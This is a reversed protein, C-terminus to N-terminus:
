AAPRRQRIELDYGISSLERALPGYQEPTALATIAVCHSYDAGGHQGVHMYSTVDGSRNSLIEPFLALVEGDRFVRFIVIDQM